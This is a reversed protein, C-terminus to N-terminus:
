KTGSIRRTSRYRIHQTSTGLYSQLPSFRGMQRVPYQTTGEKTRSQLLKEANFVTQNDILEASKANSNNQHPEQQKETTSNDPEADRTAHCPERPSDFSDPPFDGITLCHM